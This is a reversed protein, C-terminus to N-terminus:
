PTIRRVILEVSCNGPLEDIALAFERGRVDIALETTAVWRHQGDENLGLYALEVPYTDGWDDILRVNVPAPPLPKRRRRRIM